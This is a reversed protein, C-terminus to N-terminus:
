LMALRMSWAKIDLMANLFISRIKAEIEGSFKKEGRIYRYVIRGLHKKRYSVPGKRM